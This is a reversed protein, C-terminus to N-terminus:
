EGTQMEDRIRMLDAAQCFLALSTETMITQGNPLDIRIVVSSKGSHMGHALRAIGIVPIDNGMLSILKGDAKKQNLDPWCNDGELIVDLSPM